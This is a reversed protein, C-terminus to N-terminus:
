FLNEINENLIDTIFMHGPAHTIVLEPKANELAAQPTVGCAWFVPVEGEKIIVADGYDPKNIDKIGIEAPDGFHIPAGHVHPYKGTIEYAKIIDDTKMPRMSVVFPGNFIGAPKCPINTKYMPVNCGISIHRVDIGEKIMAEEFSFSCGILFCVFDEKWYKEANYCEDVKVGNKYIFYKPIDTIINANNAIKHTTFSGPETIELIPCPKPNYEAFLRFDDAYRKPLIVLNAQAYGGCMGSTPIKIEEDRILQRVVGPSLDHYNAM